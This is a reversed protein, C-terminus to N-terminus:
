KNKLVKKDNKITLENLKNELSLKMEEFDTNNDSYFAESHELIIRNFPFPFEFKDWTNFIKKRKYSISAVVTPTHTLYALEVIKSNLHFVPGRPADGALVCIENEKLVKIIGKISSFSRKNKKSGKKPDISSGHIIKLNFTQMIDGAIRGDRHASALVFISKESNKLITKLFIPALSIRGHWTFLALGDNKIAKLVEDTPGYVEKKSTAFVFWIYFHALWAIFYQIIQNSFFNKITDKVANIEKNFM